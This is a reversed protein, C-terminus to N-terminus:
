GNDSGEIRKGYSCFDDLKVRKQLLPYGRMCLHHERISNDILCSCCDKCRVVEVADITPQEAGVWNIIDTSLVKNDTARAYARLAAVAAADRDPRLVFCNEVCEGTDAKLVVYKRKLGDYQDIPALEYHKKGQQARLASIAMEFAVAYEMPYEWEVEAIAVELTKIADEYTM